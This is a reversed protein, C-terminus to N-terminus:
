HNGDCEPGTPSSISRKLMVAKLKKMQEASLVEMVKLSFKTSQIDLRTRLDGFQQVLGMIVKPDCKDMQMANELDLSKIEMDAKIRVIDKENKYWFSMIEKMQNSSINADKAADEVMGPSILAGVEDALAPLAISSLLLVMAFFVLLKNRM